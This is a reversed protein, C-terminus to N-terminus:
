RIPFLKVGDDILLPKLQPYFCDYAAPFYLICSDERYYIAECIHTEAFTWWNCGGSAGQWECSGYFTDWSEFTGNEIYGLKLCWVDDNEPIDM